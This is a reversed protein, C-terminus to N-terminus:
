EKECSNWPNSRLTRPRFRRSPFLALSPAPVRAVSGEERGVQNNEAETPAAHMAKAEIAVATVAMKKM